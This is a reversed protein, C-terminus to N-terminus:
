RSALLEAPLDCLAGAGARVAPALGHVQPVVQTCFFRATTVKALHFGDDRDLAAAAQRAMLWGAVTTALVRLFPTAGALADVRSQRWRQRMWGTLEEAAEIAPALVEGVDALAGPLQGVTAQMEALLEAVVAGERQALKRGVLDIAQIGNTGEYIAAVRIDRYYQAVGTEEVFGMGGFIQIATSTLENAVDTCWAKSLPTLLDAREAARTRQGADNSHRAIDLSGANSYCLARMAEIHSRMTMLMRRVDPHEIIAAGRPPRGQRRTAAHVVAAQYARESLALGQIGMSLRANNMMTFMTAMGNCEPGLLEAVAGQGDDGFSLVCTPSAHLGMKHEISLCRIDNRGAPADDGDLVFKPV